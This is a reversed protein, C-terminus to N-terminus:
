KISAGCVLNNPDFYVKTNLFISPFIAVQAPPCLPTPGLKLATAQPAPQGSGGGPSM